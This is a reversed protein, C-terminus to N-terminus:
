EWGVHVSARQFANNILTVKYCTGSELAQGGSPGGHDPTVDEMGEPLQQYTLPSSFGETPFDIPGISWFTEGESVPTNPASPVVAQPETVFIAFGNAGEFLTQLEGTATFGVCLDFDGEPDPACSALRVRPTGDEKDGLPGYLDDLCSTPEEDQVGSDEQPVTYPWFYDNAEYPDQLSPEPACGWLLLISVVLPTSRVANGEFIRNM